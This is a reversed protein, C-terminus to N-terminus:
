SSGRAPPLALPEYGMRQEVRWDTLNNLLELDQRRLRVSGQPRGAAVAALLGPNLLVSRSQAAAPRFGGRKVWSRADGELARPEAALRLGHRAALSRLWAVQAPRPPARSLAPTGAPPPVPRCPASSCLVM